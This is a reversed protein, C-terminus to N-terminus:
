KVRYKELEGKSYKERITSLLKELTFQGIGYGSNLESLYYKNDM